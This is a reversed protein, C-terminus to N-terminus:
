PESSRVIARLTLCITGYTCDSFSLLSQSMLSAFVLPLTLRKTFRYHKHRFNTILLIVNFLAAGQLKNKSEQQHYDVELIIM